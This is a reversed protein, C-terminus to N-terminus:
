DRLTVIGRKYLETFVTILINNDIGTDRAIESVTKTGDLENLIQELNSYMNRVEATPQRALKLVDNSRIVVKLDIAGLRRLLHVAGLTMQPGGGYAIRQLDIQGDLSNWVAQLFDRVMESEFRDWDPEKVKFPVMRPLLYEPPLTALLKLTFPPSKYLDDETCALGDPNEDAWLDPLFSFKERLEDVNDRDGTILTFALDGSEIMIFNLTGTKFVETKASSSDIKFMSIAAILNPARELVRSKSEYYYTYVSKGTKKETVIFAQHGLREEEEQLPSVAEEEYRIAWTERALEPHMDILLTTAMLSLVLYVPDESVSDCLQADLDDEFKRATELEDDSGPVVVIPASSHSRIVEATKHYFGEDVDSSVVMAFGDVDEFDDSWQFSEFSRHIVGVQYPGVLMAESVGDVRDQVLRLTARGSHNEKSITSSTIVVFKATRMLHRRVLKAFDDRHERVTRSGIKWVFAKHLSKLALLDTKETDSSQTAAVIISADDIRVIHWNKGDVELTLIEGNSVAIALEYYQDLVRNLLENGIPEQTFREQSLVKPGHLDILLGSVIM